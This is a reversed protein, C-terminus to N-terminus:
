DQRHRAYPLRHIVGAELEFLELGPRRARIRTKLYWGFIAIILMTFLTVVAIVAEVSLKPTYPPTSM